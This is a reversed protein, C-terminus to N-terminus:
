YPQPIYNNIYRKYKYKNHKKKPLEVVDCTAPLVAKMPKIGFPEAFAQEMQFVRTSMAEMKDMEAFYGPLYKYGCCQPCIAWDVLCVPSVFFGDGNCCPCSYKCKLEKIFEFNRTVVEAYISFM